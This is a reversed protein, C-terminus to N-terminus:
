FGSAFEDIWFQSGVKRVYILCSTSTQNPDSVSNATPKMTFSCEFVLKNARASYDGNYTCSKLKAEKMGFVGYSFDLSAADGACLTNMKQYQQDGFLTFFESIVNKAATVDSDSFVSDNILVSSTSGQWTVTKGLWESVARIPVYTTGQYILPEVTKGNVDTAVQKQGNLYITIGGYTATIKRGNVAFAITGLLMCCILGIIPIRFRKNKM